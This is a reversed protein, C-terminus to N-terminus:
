YKMIIIKYEKVTLAIDSTRPPKLRNDTTEATM